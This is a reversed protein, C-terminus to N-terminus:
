DNELLQLFDEVRLIVWDKSRKQRHKHIIALPTKKETKAHREAQEWIHKFWKPISKDIFSKAEIAYKNTLVDVAGMTGLRRGKLLDAIAKENRKGRARNKRAIEKKM